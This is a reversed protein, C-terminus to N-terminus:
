EDYDEEKEKVYEEHEKETPFLMWKKKWGDKVLGRFGNPVPYGKPEYDM